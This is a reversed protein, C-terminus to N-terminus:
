TTSRQELATVRAELAAIRALLEERETTTTHHGLSDTHVGTTTMNGTHTINGVFQLAGELRITQQKLTITGSPSEVNINGTASKILINDDAEVNIAGTASKVLVSGDAEVNFKAADTTKLNVDKKYTGKWGGKFDQTLFVDADDNADFKEIHGGEWECYDLKPDTVPPPEKTTYFTGLLMYNCTGNPLKVIAANQGIRPMAFSRKKGASTQWVPIPKTILPQNQHDLKDAILVRVNAGKENCVVESVKGIIVAAGFRNDHGRTYDTDALLNKRGAM